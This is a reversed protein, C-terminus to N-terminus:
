RCVVGGTWTCLPLNRGERQPVQLLRRVATGMNLLMSNGHSFDLEDGRRCNARHQVRAHAFAHLFPSVIRAGAYDSCGKPGRFRGFENCTDVHEVCLSCWRAQLNAPLCDSLRPPSPYALTTARKVCLLFRCHVPTSLKSSGQSPYHTRTCKGWSHTCALASSLRARVPVDHHHEVVSVESSHAFAEPRVVRRTFKPLLALFHLCAHAGM